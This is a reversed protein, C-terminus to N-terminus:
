FNQGIVYGLYAPTVSNLVEIAFLDSKNAGTTLTPASGGAWKIGSFWTVTRSGTGDQTLLLELKQGNIVNALALTRNGGLVVQHRDGGVLEDSNESGQFGPPSGAAGGDFTVTAGDTDTVLNRVRSNYKILRPKWTYIDSM